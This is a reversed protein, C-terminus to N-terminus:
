CITLESYHLVEVMVRYNSEAVDIVWDYRCGNLAIVAVGFLLVGQVVVTITIKLFFRKIILHESNIPSLRNHLCKVGARYLGVTQVQRIGIFGGGMRLSM